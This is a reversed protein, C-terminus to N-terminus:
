GLEVAELLSQLTTFKDPKLEETLRILSLDRLAVYKFWNSTGAALKSWGHIKVVMNDDEWDEKAHKILDAMERAQALTKPLSKLMTITTRAVRDSKSKRAVLLMERFRVSESFASRYWTTVIHEVHYRESWLKRLGECSKIRLVTAPLVLAMRGGERLFRDALLVFYGYYGLQGHLYKEYEGFRTLLIAKYEEPIREQRTFPPNMIVVDYTGLSVEEPMKGSLSVVGKAKEKPTTYHDLFSQGTLVMKLEAVSPITRGPRLDTSDWIAIGVKDTFYQPSQLALHCAAVNAAFPMADIGLLDEQAFRRHIEQSFPEKILTRKRRYAAVLLGGSGVAFDAVKANASDISIFALLEAALVNTYFAAVNKRVEFPILDHFITGLLDGGVKQAGLGSVVNIITRVEESFRPPILSAVDYSFVTRYNVDLVKGFYRNLDSPQRIADPDIEPFETRLKSLAHYFLLQNVLLYAAAFKLEEVPYKGEEYQLINQFVDKGGFFGELQKSTLHRLGNLMYMASQRLSTIIWDISPEVYKPPALIHEALIKTIDLLSGEYVKFLRNDEDPFMAILKFKSKMALDKVAQAPMPQTLQESYLIAFGGKIGLVKHHKLYDNQIKAIAMILDRETFKAEIPYVGANRCLLDPKRVGVPTDITPTLQTIVGLKELKEGLLSTITDETAKSIM